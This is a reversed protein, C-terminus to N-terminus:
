RRAPADTAFKGGYYMRGRPTDCDLDLTAVADSSPDFKRGDHDTFEGSQLLAAETLGPKITEVELEYGSLGQSNLSLQCGTWPFADRNEVRFLHLTRNYGILAGLSQELQRYPRAITTEPPTKPAASESPAENRASLWWALAAACIVAFVIAGAIGGSASPRRNPRGCHPCALASSSVDKGCDPCTQLSM